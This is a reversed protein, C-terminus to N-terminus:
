LSFLVRLRLDFLHRVITKELRQDDLLTLNRVWKFIELIGMPMISQICLDCRFIKESVKMTSANLDKHPAHPLEFYESLTLIITAIQACVDTNLFSIQNSLAIQHKALLCEINKLKALVQPKSYQDNQFSILLNPQALPTFFRPSFKYNLIRIM